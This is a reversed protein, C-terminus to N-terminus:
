QADGALNTWEYPDNEHDYLEEIGVLDCLTPYITM